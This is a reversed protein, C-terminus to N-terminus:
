FGVSGHRAVMLSRSEIELEATAASPKEEQPGFCLMEFKGDGKKVFFEEYGTSEYGLRQFVARGSDSATLASYGVIKWPKDDVVNQVLRLALKALGRVDECGEFREVHFVHMGVEAGEDDRASAFMGPQIEIEKQKGVLLEEWHRKLLPMVIIAGVDRSGPGATRCLISLEPCADRWAQMREFPLPAPYLGQDCEYISQLLADDIPAAHLESAMRTITSRIHHRSVAM